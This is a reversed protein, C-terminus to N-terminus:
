HQSNVSSLLNLPLACNDIMRLSSSVSESSDDFEDDFEDEFETDGYDTPDSM